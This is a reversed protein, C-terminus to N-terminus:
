NGRDTKQGCHLGSVQGQYGSRHNQGRTKECRGSCPKLCRKSPSRTPFLILRLDLPSSRAAVLAQRVFSEQTRSEQTGVEQTGVEQTSVEQTGVEQTRSEQRSIAEQGEDSGCDQEYGHHLVRQSQQFQRSRVM